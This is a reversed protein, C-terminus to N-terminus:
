NKHRRWHPYNGETWGQGHLLGGWVSAGNRFGRLQNEFWSRGSKREWPLNSQIVDIAETMGQMMGGSGAQLGEMINGLGGFISKIAETLNSWSEASSTGFSSSRMESDTLGSLLGGSAAAGSGMAGSPTSAGSGGMVSLIPNLGAKILDQVERQHATDSMEKQWDRSLASEASAWDRQKQAEESNYAQLAQMAQQNFLTAAAGTGMTSSYGQSEQYSSMASNSGLGGIMSDMLGM